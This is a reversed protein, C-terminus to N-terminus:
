GGATVTISATATSTNGSGGATCTLGTLTFDAPVLESVTFTGPAVTFTAGGTGTTVSGTTSITFTAPLGNGGTTFTFTGNGGVTDKIVTVTGQTCNAFSCSSTGGATVTVTVSPSTGPPSGPTCGALDFVFGPDVSESVTYTGAALASFTATGVNGTTAITASM